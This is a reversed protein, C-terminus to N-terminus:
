GSCRMLGTASCALAASLWTAAADGANARTSSIPQPAPSREDGVGAGPRVADRKPDIKVFRTDTFPLLLDLCAPQGIDFQEGGTKAIQQRHRRALKVVDDNM